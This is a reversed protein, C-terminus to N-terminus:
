MKKDLHSEKSRTFFIIYSVNVFAKAGSIEPSTVAASAELKWSKKAPKGEYLASGNVKWDDSVLPGL